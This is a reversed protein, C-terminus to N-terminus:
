VRLDPNVGVGWGVARAPSHAQLAVVDGDYAASCRVMRVSLGCVRMRSRDM